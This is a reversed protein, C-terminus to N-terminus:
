LELGHSQVAISVNQSVTLTVGRPQHALYRRQQENIPVVLIENDSSLLALNEQVLRLGVFRHADADAAQWPRHFPIEGITPRKSNRESVYALVAENIPEPTAAQAERRASELTPNDFSVALHHTGAVRAIRLQFDESGHATLVSGYRETARTLMTVIVDDGAAAAVHLNDGNERIEHGGVREIVTGQKTVQAEPAL